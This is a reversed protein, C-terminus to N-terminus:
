CVPCALYKIDKGGIFTIEKVQGFIPIPFQAVSLFTFLYKTLVNEINQSRFVYEAFMKTCKLKVTIKKYGRLWSECDVMLLVM